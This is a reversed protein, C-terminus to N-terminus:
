GRPRQDVRGVVAGQQMRQGAGNEVESGSPSAITLSAVTSQQETLHTSLGALHGDLAQAAEASSPVLTREAEMATGSTEMLGFLNM